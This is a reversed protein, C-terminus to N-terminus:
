ARAQNGEHEMPLTEGGLSKVGRFTEFTSLRNEIKSCRINRHDAFRVGFQDGDPLQIIRICKQNWTITGECDVLLAVLGVMSGPDARM